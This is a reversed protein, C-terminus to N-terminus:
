KPTMNLRKKFSRAMGFRYLDSKPPEKSDKPKKMSKQVENKSKKTIKSDGLPDWPIGLIQSGVEKKIM